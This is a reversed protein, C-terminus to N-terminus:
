DIFFMQMDRNMDILREVIDGLFIDIFYFYLQTTYLLTETASLSSSFNAKCRFSVNLYSSAAFGHAEIWYSHTINIITVCYNLIKTDM